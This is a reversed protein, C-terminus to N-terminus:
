SFYKVQYLHYELQGTQPQDSSSFELGSYSYSYSYEARDILYESADHLQSYLM